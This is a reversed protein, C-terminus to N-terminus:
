YQPLVITGDIGSHEVDGSGVSRVALDGRVTRVVLSGSGISGVTVNGGIDHLQLDGSGISGAAAHGGIKRLQVDGSAISGIQADGAVTAVTLDGSGISDVEVNGTIGRVEVDGSGISGIRVDHAVGTATLDGSGLSVVHLADIVDLVVDGSGLVITVPGHIRTAEVDGSGIEADLAATGTIHADGSGLQLRVPISDPITGSLDLYAYSNWKVGFISINIANGNDPEGNRLARVILKGGVREQEITLQDLLKADSACARGKLAGLANPAANLNLTHSGVEFVVSTVGALDLQLSRPQSHTCNADQALAAVPLLLLAALIWKHM